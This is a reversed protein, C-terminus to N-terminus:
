TQMYINVYAYRPLVVYLFIINKNQIARTIYKFHIFAIRHRIQLQIKIKQSGANLSFTM